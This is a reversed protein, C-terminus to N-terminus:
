RCTTYSSKASQAVTRAAQYKAGSLDAPDNTLGWYGYEDWQSTLSFHMFLDNGCGFWQSVERKVLEGMKASRNAAIKAQRNAPDQRLDPGGEYAVSKIGYYDALAKHSAGTYMGGNYAKRVFTGNADVGAAFFPENETALSKDLSQLIQSATASESAALDESLYFYPATAIGYILKSPQARYTAINKLVDEAIGPNAFQSPYVVRIQNNMAGAGFVEKFLQAIRVTRKGVRRYGACYPNCEGSSPAFATRTCKQGNTLTTDGEVAEKVAADMNDNAQSFIYNWLENSYEVYVVRNSRLKSKLLKALNTIYTNDANVPINIWIDKGLQNAMKIAYEYSAGKTSAQSGSAPVTREGWTRVPNNNTHLFDMFRVVKFPELAQKFETTFVDGDTYGPQRLSVNRVGGGTNRFTLM